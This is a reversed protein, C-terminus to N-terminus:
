DKLFAVFTFMSFDDVIMLIYKKKDNSKTWKLGMLDM